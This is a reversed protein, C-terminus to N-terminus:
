PAVTEEPIQEILVTDETPEELPDFGLLLDTCNGDALCVPPKCSSKEWNAPDQCSYRYSGDGCAALMSGAVITLLLVVKKM